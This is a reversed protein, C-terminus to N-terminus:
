TSCLNIYNCVFIVCNVLAFLKVLYFACCMEQMSLVPLALLLTFIFLICVVFILFKESIIM